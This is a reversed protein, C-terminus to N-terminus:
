ERERETDLTKAIAARAQVLAAIGGYSDADSKPAADETPCGAKSLWFNLNEACDKLAELLDPAAAFLRANAKDEAIARPDNFGGVRASRLYCHGIAEDGSRIERLEGYGDDAVEWPATTHQTM